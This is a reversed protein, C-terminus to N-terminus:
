RRVRVRAWQYRGGDDSLDWNEFEEVEGVRGLLERVEDDTRMRFYRGDEAVWEPQSVHGWVGVELLGGPRVVRGLEAVAVDMEDGELHMLTSMTWAADFADDDFPLASALAEQASLGLGRCIEVAVPSLDVGEYALGADQMPVGDRGGGCGVELVRELGRRLCEDVFAALRRERDEGLPRVAREAMEGDYFDRM